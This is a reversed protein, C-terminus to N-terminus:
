AFLNGHFNEIKAAHQNSSSLSNGQAVLVRRSSTKRLQKRSPCKWESCVNWFLFLNGKLYSLVSLQIFLFCLEFANFSLFSYKSSVLYFVGFAISLSAFISIQAATFLIRQVEVQQSKLRKIRDVNGKGNHNVLSKKFVVSLLTAIKISGIGFTITVFVLFSILITFALSKNRLFFGVYLSTYGSVIFLVLIHKTKKVNKIIKLRQFSAIEIWLLSINLAAGIGHILSTGVLIKSPTPILVYCHNKGFFQFVTILHHAVGLIISVTNQILTTFFADGRFGRTGIKDIM